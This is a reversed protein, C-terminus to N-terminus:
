QLVIYYKIIPRSWRRINVVVIFPHRHISFYHLAIVVDRPGVHARRGAAVVAAAAAASTLTPTSTSTTAVDAM